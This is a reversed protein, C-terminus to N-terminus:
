VDRYRGLLTDLQSVSVRGYLDHDISVTPGVACNGMCFVQELQFDHGPRAERVGDAMRERLNQWIRDGHNALCSEGMCVRILPRPPARRLDPYYSLVGAIDAESVELAHAIDCVSAPPIFGLAKQVALLTRLINPPEGKAPKQTTLVAALAPRQEAVPCRTWASM